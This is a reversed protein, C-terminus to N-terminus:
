VENKNSIRNLKFFLAFKVASLNRVRFSCIDPRGFRINFLEIRFEGVFYVEVERGIGGDSNGDGDVLGVGAEEVDQGKAIGKRRRGNSM